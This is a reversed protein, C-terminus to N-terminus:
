SINGTQFAHIIVITFYIGAVLVPTGVIALAILFARLTYNKPKEKAM